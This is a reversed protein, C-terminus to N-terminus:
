DILIAPIKKDESIGEEVGSVSKIARIFGANWKLQRLCQDLADNVVKEMLGTNGNLSFADGQINAGAQLKDRWLPAISGKGYLEMSIIIAASLYNHGYPGFWRIEVDLRDMDETTPNNSVIIGLARLETTLGDRVLDVPSRDLRWKYDGLEYWLREQQGKVTLFLTLQRDHESLLPVNEEATYRPSATFTKACGTISFVLCILISYIRIYESIM